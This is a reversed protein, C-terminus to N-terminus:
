FHKVHFMKFMDDTMFGSANMTISYITEHSVNEISIYIIGHLTSRCVDIDNSAFYYLYKHHTALKDNLATWILIMKMCAQVFLKIPFVCLRM